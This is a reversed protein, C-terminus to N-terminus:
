VVRAFSGQGDTNLNEILVHTAKGDAGITFTVGSLGAANEGVTEYTFTDRDYHSIPLKLPTPGIVLALGEGEEVIEIDDWLPNSGYRGTYAANKLAPTGPDPPNSYDSLIELGITGPNKFAEPYITTWVKTPKGYLADDVFNAAMAEAIGIPEGNTLVVVGLEEAPVLIVRTAAGMAFGGSHTLRARGEPDYNVDWGLGYFTPQGTFINRGNIIQPTQTEVLQEEPIVQKGELEGKQMQMRMWKAMDNVSSSVGGAPSQADPERQFKHVWTGDELVHNVAKNPRAMFDSFRSSTSDMGLPQYLKQDSAEEWTLDYAIAAAVAGETMGFNTYAYASRFSTAPKQYRLRHLVQDRNFGLDELKDGAHAPLGSRHTYMDRITIQKTAWSEHMEFSPTLDSLKTDWTIKGEGVLVAVVSAGIPKSVSALQFVTDPDVTEPKGVQRVGFGKAYILEGQYVVGVAVGPLANTSIQEQAMKELNAIAGDV